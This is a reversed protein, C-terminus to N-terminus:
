QLTARERMDLQICSSIFSSANESLDIPFCPTTRAKMLELIKVPDFSGIEKLFPPNGTLLELALCGLAWVDSRTDYNENM